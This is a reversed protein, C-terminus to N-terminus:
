LRGGQAGKRVLISIAIPVLYPIDTPSCCQGVSHATRTNGEFCLGGPESMLIHFIWEARKDETTQFLGRHMSTEFARSTFELVGLPSHNVTDSPAINM